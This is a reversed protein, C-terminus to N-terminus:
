PCKAFHVRNLHWLCMTFGNIQFFFKHILIALKFLFVWYPSFDLLCVGIMYYQVKLTSMHIIIQFECEFEFANKTIIENWYKKYPSLIHYMVFFFFSNFFIIVFVEIFSYSHVKSPSFKPWIKLLGLRPWKNNSWSINKGKVHIIFLKKLPCWKM